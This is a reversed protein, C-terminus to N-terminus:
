FGNKNRPEFNIKFDKKGDILFFTDKIYIYSILAFSNFLAAILGGMLILLWWIRILFKIGSFYIINPFVAEVVAGVITALPLFIVLFGLLSMFGSIGGIIAAGKVTLDGIQNKKEMYYVVLISSFICMVLSSLINLYPIVTILGLVGGLILSYKIINLFKEKSM